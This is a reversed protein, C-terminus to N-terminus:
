TASPKADQEQFDLGLQTAAIVAQTRNAVNLARLAASLHAKVTQEALDLERAIAKNPLGRLLLALVQAQRESLGLESPRLHAAAPRAPLLAQGAQPDQEEVLDPPLYTGGALVVRLAGLTVGASCSKPIYGAAGMGLARKFDTQSTSASLVVIVAGRCRERLTALVQFGSQDPLMLDLLVLDPADISTIEAAEAGSKAEFIEMTPDLKLLVQKLGERVMAHDDVLLARM